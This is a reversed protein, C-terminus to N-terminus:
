SRSINRICRRWKVRWMISLTIVFKGDSVNYKFFQALVLVKPNFINCKISTQKSTDSDLSVSELMLWCWDADILMMMLWCWDTDILMLWYWDADILILWCLDACILMFWCWGADILMLILWYWDADILMLWLCVAYIDILNLYCWDADIDSSFIAVELEAQCPYVSHTEKGPVMRATRETQPPNHSCTLKWEFIELKARYVQRRPSKGRWFLQFTAQHCKM